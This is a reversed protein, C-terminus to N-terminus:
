RAADVSATAGSRRISAAIADALRKVGEDIEAHSATSYSLRLTNKGSNDAHFSAGPVFIVKAEPFSQAQLADTDIFPPLTLWVFMGGRPETWYVGAPMHRRLAELMLDRRTKYGERLKAGHSALIRRAVADVIMQNLMGSNLDSAQKVSVLKAIIAQPAVIWGVRLGPTLSKSFTGLYVVGPAAGPVSRDLALLTPQGEGDFLLQDYAQDEILPVAYQRALRIIAQRQSLPITVGSPNGHDPMVYFFKAGARFETELRELDIGDADFPVSAVQPRFLGFAQL